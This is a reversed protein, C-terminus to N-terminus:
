IVGFKIEAPFLSLSSYFSMTQVLLIVKLFIIPHSIREAPCRKLAQTPKNTQELLNLAIVERGRHSRKCAVLSCPLLYAMVEIQHLTLRKLM